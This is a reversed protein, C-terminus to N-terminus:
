VTLTRTEELSGGPPLAADGTRDIPGGSLGPGTGTAGPVVTGITDVGPSYTM